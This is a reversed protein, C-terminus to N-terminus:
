KKPEFDELSDVDMYAPVALGIKTGEYCPGLDVFEGENEKYLAGHTTPLWPSLSADADGSSISEFLIAPDIPTLTVNFGQQALVIKAVNATFLESDWSSSVLEIPTGDVQEVGKTWKEVAKQNEDVWKQALEDKELGKENATLLASEIDSVEWHFRDLITYANPLDEKLGKRVITTAHQEEGFIGKPDELYKLDWKAFMYHPSWATFMIPEKNQIAQDIESLMAGTSSTQQNWGSLSEYEEIAQNNLETQGAGPELGTITYDMEESVSQQEDQGCGAVVLSMSLGAIIGLKKMNFNSM